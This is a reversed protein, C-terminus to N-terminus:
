KVVRADALNVERGTTMGDPSEILIRLVKKNRVDINVQRPKDAKKVTESFLVANDGEVTVKVAIDERFYDDIGLTTQFERYDGDIEFTLSVGAAVGLGKAYRKGDLRLDSAEDNRSKDKSVMFAAGLRIAEADTLQADIKATLDSLYKLSASTFDLKSVLKRDPYLITVDGSTVVEMASGAVKISKANLSNKHVDLVRCITIPREGGPIQAFIMGHIGPQRPKRVQSNAADTFSISKGDADAEGFTGESGDLKTDGRYVLIDRRGRNRVLTQFDLRNKPENADRVMYYISAVPIKLTTGLTGDLTLLAVEANSGKVAFSTCHLLSGDLLEVDIFKAASIDKQAVGFDLAAAETPPTSVPGSPTQMVIGAVEAKVLEGVVKKGALTTLEGAIAAGASLCLSGVMLASFLSRKM